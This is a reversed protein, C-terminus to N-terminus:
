SKARLVEYAQAVPLIRAGSEVAYRVIDEFFGPSCGWETPNECVDHTALILWGRSKCNQDILKKVAEPDNRSKELFFASLYNLDVTGINFTQGGCRCCEFYKSIRRKTEARPVSIPYSLTKFTAGPVLRELAQRNEIVSDEFVAPQTEQAHCHSFTHCGLEHGQELLLKLDEPLFIPGTQSQTGMLGLCAYYTGALGYKHLIEGGTLLASRPFDDFSFSIIPTDAHIAFSRVAFSRAMRREYYRRVRTTWQRVSSKLKVSLNDARFSTQDWFKTISWRLTLLLQQCRKATRWGFTAKIWSYKWSLSPSERQGGLDLLMKQAEDAIDLRDPYFYSLSTRVFSLCAERVRPSDELSLIYRVHLKMSIWHAEIRAASLGVYSLGRFALGPGRYYTKAEPVFRVGDSQLLVRCFYEGDDDSLLRTDWPGAAETLERSVLWTATQMYLNEGMKRLLWELPSLDGWLDSPTFEARYYRYIFKGWASSLLVRTSGGQRRCNMQKAIKDPALLDDSDLWQIYDGHCLSFAKNRAAAAGQRGQSVVRVGGSMYQQAIRLTQDTSGDDVVIIEKPEWTQDIASRISEGIWKESNFAPILISVLPNPISRSKISRAALAATRKRSYQREKGLTISQTLLRRMRLSEWQQALRRVLYNKRLRWSGEMFHIGFEGFRNWKRMDCVDDPFLVEINAALESNEALTRSVLGPGTSNLVYFEDRSLFPVGRMMPEVWKPDRQARVCNEIVAELFPHGAAAGFAYNGIEWDMNHRDRLHTSFTLGEFPFVCGFNLLDSLGSALMVDLDFYFGGHRYVALYRFFDYRQIPYRFSDFVKRYQPFEEDIFAQVRAEDFFLYEFDPNLLRINAIMARNRLPQEAYRGTQIIRKPIQHTM